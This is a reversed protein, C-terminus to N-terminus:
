PLKYSTATLSGTWLGHHQYVAVTFDYQISGVKYRHVIERPQVQLSETFGSSPKLKDLTESMFHDVEDRSSASYFVYVGEVNYLCPQDATRVDITVCCLCGRVDDHVRETFSKQDCPSAATGFPSALDQSTVSRAGGSIPALLAEYDITNRCSPVEVTAHACSLNLIIPAILLWVVHLGGANIM